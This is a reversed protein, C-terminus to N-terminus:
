ACVQSREASHSRRLSHTLWHIHTGDLGLIPNPVFALERATGGRERRQQGCFLDPDRESRKPLDGQLAASFFLSRSFSSGTRLYGNGIPCIGELHSRPLSM